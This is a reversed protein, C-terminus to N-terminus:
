KLKNTSDLYEPTKHKVFLAMIDIGTYSKSGVSISGLEFGQGRDMFWCAAKARIASASKDTFDIQAYAEKVKSIEEINIELGRQQDPGLPGSRGLGYFRILSEKTAITEKASSENVVLTSPDVVTFKAVDTCVSIMKQENSKTCGAALVSICLVAAALHRKDM